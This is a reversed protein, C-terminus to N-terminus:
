NDELSNLNIKNHIAQWQMVQSDFEKLSDEVLGNTDTLSCVDFLGFDILQLEGKKADWFLHELKTEWNYRGNELGLNIAEEFQVRVKKLEENTIQKHQLLWNVDKGNAKEMVLFLDDQYAYLKPMYKIGDLSLLAEIDRDKHNKLWKVILNAGLVEFVSSRNGQNDVLKFASDTYLQSEFSLNNLLQKVGSSLDNFHKTIEM